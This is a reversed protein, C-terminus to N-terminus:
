DAPMTAAIRGYVQMKDATMENVQREKVPMKYVTM